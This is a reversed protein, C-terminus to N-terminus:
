NLSFAILALEPMHGGTAIEARLRAFFPAAEQPTTLTEISQLPSDTAVALLLQWTEVSPGQLTMPVAFAATMDDDPRLFRALSQVRGANDVLLLGLSRAGPMHVQGQVPDGRPVQRKAMTLYLSFAPYARNRRIFDLTECQGQTVTRLVMGPVSGAEDELGARFAELGTQAPGFVEFRLQGERDLAPLAAFCPIDPLGRLHDLVESFLPQDAAADEAHGPAQLGGGTAAAQTPRPAARRDSLFRRPRDRLARELTDESPPLMARRLTDQTSTTQSAAPAPTSASLRQPASSPRPAEPIPQVRTPATDNVSAVPEVRPATEQLRAPSREPAPVHPATSATVRTTEASQPRLAPARATEPQSDTPQSEVPRLQEPQSRTIALPRVPEPMMRPADPQVDAPQAQQQLPTADQAALRATSDLAALTRAEAPTATARSPADQTQDANDQPALRAQPPSAAVRPAAEQGGGAVQPVSRLIIEPGPGPAAGPATSLAVVVAAALGIHLSVSVGAALTWSAADPGAVPLLPRATM